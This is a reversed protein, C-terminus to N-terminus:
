RRWSRTAPRPPSTRATTSSPTPSSFGGAIALAGLTAAARAPARPSAARLAAIAGWAILVVVPSTLMLTKAGAWTTVAESVALWALLM